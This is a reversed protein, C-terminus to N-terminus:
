PSAQRLGSVSYPPYQSVLPPRPPGLCLNISRQLQNDFAARLATIAEPTFVLLGGLAAPAGLVAIWHDILKALQKALLVIPLMTIVLLFMHRGIEGARSGRTDPKGPVAVAGKGNAGPEVFFDRHRGTQIALFSRAYIGKKSAIRERRALLSQATPPSRVIRTGAQRANFEPALGPSLIEREM